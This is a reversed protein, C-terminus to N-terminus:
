YRALDEPAYPPPNDNNGVPHRDVFRQSVRAIDDVTMRGITRIHEVQQAMNMKKHAGIFIVGTERCTRIYLTLDDPCEKRFKNVYTAVSSKPIPNGRGDYIDAVVIEAGNNAIVHAVIAQIKGFNTHPKAM